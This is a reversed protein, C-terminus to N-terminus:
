DDPPMVAPREGHLPLTSRLVLGVLRDIQEAQRKATRRAKHQNHEVKKLRKQLRITEVQEEGMHERLVSDVVDRVQEDRRADAKRMLRAIARVVATNVAAVSALTAAIAEWDQTSTAILM